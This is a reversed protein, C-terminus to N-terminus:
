PAKATAGPAPTPASAAPATSAPPPYQDSNRCGGLGFALFSVAWLALVVKTM